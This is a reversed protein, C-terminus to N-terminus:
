NGAFCGCGSGCSHQPKPMDCASSECGSSAEEGKLMLYGGSILRRVPLGTEPDHTLPRDNMSQKMEFRRTKTGPTESVTEYVYIPMPSSQWGVPTVAFGLKRRETRGWAVPM